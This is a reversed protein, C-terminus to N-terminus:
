SQSPNGAFSPQGGALPLIIVPTHSSFSPKEGPLTHFPPQGEPPTPRNYFPLGRPPFPENSPPKGGALQPQSAPTQM